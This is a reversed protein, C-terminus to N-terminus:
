HTKRRFSNPSSGVRKKFIRSFYYLSAFGCDLAVEQVSKNSSLLLIKSEEIRRTLLDDKPSSKFFKHYLVSFRNPSLNLLSAMKDVQWNNNYHQHIHTRVEVFRKEFEREVSTLNENEIALHWQRSILLFIGELLLNIEDEWYPKHYDLETEIRRFYETLLHPEKTSLIRNFPINYKSALKLIGEGSVHMWDNRFGEKGNPTGHYQPFIPDHLICDGPKGEENGVETRIFFPTSFSLLVYSGEGDPRDIIFDTTHPTDTGLLIINIDEM